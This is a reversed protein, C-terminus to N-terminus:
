VYFLFGSMIFFAPVAMVGIEKVFLFINRNIITDKFNNNWQIHYLVISLTCIFQMLTIKNSFQKDMNIITEKENM